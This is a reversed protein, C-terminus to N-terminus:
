QCKLRGVVVGAHLFMILMIMLVLARNTGEKKKILLGFTDIAHSPNFADLFCGKVGHEFVNKPERPEKIRFIGYILAIFFIACATSLVGIYGVTQFYIGGLPQAILVFLNITIQLMGVRLTRTEISTIDAIFSFVAMVLMTQGGFFSPIVTQSVGLAEIPWEKMYVVCLICAAVSFFEGILPLLM